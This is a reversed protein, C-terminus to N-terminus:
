VGLVRIKVNYVVTFAKRHHVRIAGAVILLPAHVVDGHLAQVGLCFAKNDINEGCIDRKNFSGPRECFRFFRQMLM